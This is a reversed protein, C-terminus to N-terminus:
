RGTYQRWFIIPRNRIIRTPKVCVFGPNVEEFSTFGPKIKLQGGYSHRKGRTAFFSGSYLNRGSSGQIVLAFCNLKTGGAVAQGTFADSCILM